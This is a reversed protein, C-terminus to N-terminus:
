NSSRRTNPKLLMRRLEVPDIKPTYNIPRYYGTEPDPAWSSCAEPGDPKEELTGLKGRGPAISGLGVRASVDSATAFGRQQLQFLPLSQAVLRNLSRAM